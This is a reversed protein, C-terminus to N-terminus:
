PKKKEQAKKFVELTEPSLPRNKGELREILFMAAALRASGDATPQKVMLYLNWLIADITIESWKTDPM